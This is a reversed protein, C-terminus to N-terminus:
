KGAARVANLQTVVSNYNTALEQLRRVTANYNSALANHRVISQELQGGAERLRENLTRLSEDRNRVATAWNTVAAQLQDRERLLQANEQEFQRLKQRAAASEAHLEQFQVKFRELDAATGRATKEQAARTEEAALHQKELRQVERNLRRDRQWQVVCLGALLLVGCLNIWGLAKM